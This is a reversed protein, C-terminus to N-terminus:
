EGEAPVYELLDGPQCDLAKCLADLTSMRIAKSKQNKIISLNSLTIGVKQSLENLSIKKKSMLSDLHIKIPM